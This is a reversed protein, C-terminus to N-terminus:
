DAPCMGQGSCPGAPLQRAKEKASVHTMQV